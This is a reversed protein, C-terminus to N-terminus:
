AIGLGRINGIFTADFGALTAFAWGREAYDRFQDFSPAGPSLLVIGNAPTIDRAISVADALAVASKLRYDGPLARLIDAIRKGNAGMTVIAHPPARQVAEAFGRWDLGREHGGVLVTTKRPALSELAEFTARPTTAISDDVWVLGGREGLTQLRHPLPVFSGVDDLGGMADEGAADVAALAACVNLANHLGPLPLDTLERARREFRFIAGDRVHWGTADGFVIRHPHAATRTLL